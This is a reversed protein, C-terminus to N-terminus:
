KQIGGEAMPKLIDILSSAESSTIDEISRKGSRSLFADAIAQGKTREILSEIFKKQKESVLRDGRSSEVKLAKLIEILESAQDISLGNLSKVGLNKMHKEAVIRRPEDRMLNELFSIQKGTPGRDNDAGEVKISLLRDILRSADKQQLDDLNDSGISKLFAHVENERDPSSEQLKRIFAIQKKSVM